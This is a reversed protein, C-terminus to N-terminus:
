EETLLQSMKVARSSAIKSQKLADNREDLLREIEKELDGAEKDQKEAHRELKSILKIHSSMITDVTCPFLGRIFRKIARM